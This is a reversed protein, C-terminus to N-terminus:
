KCSTKEVLVDRVEKLTHEENVELQFSGQPFNFQLLIKDNPLNIKFAIHAKSFNLEKYSCMRFLKNSVRPLSSGTAM